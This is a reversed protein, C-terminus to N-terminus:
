KCETIKPSHFEFKGQEHDYIFSSEWEYCHIPVAFNIDDPTASLPVDSTKYICLKFRMLVNTPTGNSLFATSPHDTIYLEPSPPPGDSYRKETEYALSGSVKNWKCLDHRSKGHATASYVPDTIDSDIIWDDFKFLEQGGFLRMVYEYGRVLEGDVIRSTFVCGKILQVFAYDELTAVSDTEYKAFLRTGYSYDNKAFKIKYDEVLYTVRKLSCTSNKECDKNEFIESTRSVLVTKGIDDDAALFTAPSIALALFAFIRCINKM